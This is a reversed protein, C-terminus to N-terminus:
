PLKSPEIDHLGRIDVRVTGDKGTPRFVNAFRAGHAIEDWKYSGRTHVTQSFTEDFGSLLILFEANWRELDEATAGSLPSRDDIPHVVTWTLPFFTVRDRELALSFFERDGRGGGQPWRSLMLKAQLEVIQSSRRNAIRFMLGTKGRYPAIVAKESFLIDARPRSFRAFMLGTAIAFGFLGVMAELTVLVNAALSEPSMSGYGITALTHVSFFFGQAFNPSFATGSPGRLAGPGCLSYGLAFLANVGLFAATILALFGKWSVTLLWHYFSISELLSLGDRRVNFTGDRNLLRKRSERSVVSGFGLDGEASLAVPSPNESPPRSM